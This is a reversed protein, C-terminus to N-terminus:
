MEIKIEQLDALSEKERRREEEVAAAAMANKMDKRLMWISMTESIPIGSAESEFGQDAFLKLAKDNGETVACVALVGKLSMIESLAFAVMRRGYGKNQQQPTVALMSIEWVEDDIGLKRIMMFAAQEEGLYGGYLFCQIGTDAEYEEIRGAVISPDPIMPENKEESYANFADFVVKSSADIEERGIKKCIFQEESM